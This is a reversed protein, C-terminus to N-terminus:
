SALRRSSPISESLAISSEWKSRALIGVASPSSQWRGAAVMKFSGVTLAMAALAAAIWAVDAVKLTPM